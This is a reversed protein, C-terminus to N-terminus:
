KKQIAKQLEKLDSSKLNYSQSTGKAYIIEGSISNVVNIFKDNGSKIFLLYYFPTKDELIKRNLDSTTLIKYNLKYDEFIEKEDSQKTEDASSKSFKTLVYNPVFLTEVALKKLEERNAIETTLNHEKGNNLYAVLTQIYNTVIGTGWNKIHGKGDYDTKYLMSPNAAVVYDTFMEIRAIQIKDNLNFHRRKAPNYVFKGNTTWLELFVNTKSFDANSGAVSEVGSAAAGITLFSNNPAINKEVESYKICEVKSFTWNKLFLAAYEKDIVSNPDKMAVFLTGSKIKAIEGVNSLVIQSFGSHITIFFVLLCNLKTKM